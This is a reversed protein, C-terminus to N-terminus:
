EGGLRDTTNRNIASQRNGQHNVRSRSDADQGITGLAKQVINDSASGKGMLAVSGFRTNTLFGSIDAIVDGSKKLIGILLYYVLVKPLIGTFQDVFMMELHKVFFNNSLTAGKTVYGYFDMNVLGIPFSFVVGWDVQFSLISEYIIFLLGNIFIIFSILLVPQLTLAFSYNYWSEFMQRTQSFLMMCFFIPALSILFSLGIFGLMFAIIAEISVFFFMLLGYFMVYIVLWGVPFIWLFSSIKMINDGHFFQLLGADVFRFYEGTDRQYDFASIDGTSTELGVVASLLWAGGDKFISFLHQNFFNWSGESILTLMVAIKIVRIVVESNTRQVMGLLHMMGFSMVYLVLLIRVIKNLFSSASLNDYIMETAKDVERFIPDIVYGLSDAIFGSFNSTKTIQVDYFGVNDFYDTNERFALKVEGDKSIKISSNKKSINHSEVNQGNADEVILEVYSDNVKDAIETRSGNISLKVDFNGVFGRFKDALRINIDGSIPTTFEIAYLNKAPLYPLSTAKGGKASYFIKSEASSKQKMPFNEYLSQPLDIINGAIQIELGYGGYVCCNQPDFFDIPCTFDSTSASNQGYTDQLSQYAFKFGSSICMINRDSLEDRVRQNILTVNNNSSSLVYDQLQMSLLNRPRYQIESELPIQMLIQSNREVYGFNQGNKEHTYIINSKERSSLFIAGKVTVFLQDGAKVFLKKPSVVSRSNSTVPFLKHSYYEKVIGYNVEAGINNKLKLWEANSIWLCSNLSILCFIAFFCKLIKRM